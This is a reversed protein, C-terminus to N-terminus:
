PARGTVVVRCIQRLWVSGVLWCRCLIAHHIQLICTNFDSNNLGIQSIRISADGKEIESLGRHSTQCIDTDADAILCDFTNKILIDQFYM